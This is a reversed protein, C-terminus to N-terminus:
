EANHMMIQVRLTFDWSRVTSNGGAPTIPARRDASDALGGQTFPCVAGPPGMMVSLLEHHQHPGRWQTAICAPLPSDGMVIGAASWKSGSKRFREMIEMRAAINGWLRTPRLMSIWRERLPRRLFSTVCRRGALSAMPRCCRSLKDTLDSETNLILPEQCTSWWHTSTSSVLPFTGRHVPGSLMDLM